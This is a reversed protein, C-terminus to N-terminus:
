IYIKKNKLHHLGHSTYPDKIWSNNKLTNMRKNGSGLASVADGEVRIATENDRIKNNISHGGNYTFIKDKSGAIGSAIRSGLSHGAVVTQAPQYKKKAEELTEKATNYRLTNKHLGLALAPDNIAWDILSRSGAVTYLMKKEKPNYLVSNFRDSLEKDLKYGHQSYFKDQEKIPKYSNNLVDYLDLHRNDQHINFM